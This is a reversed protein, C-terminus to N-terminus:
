SGQTLLLQNVMIIRVLPLRRGTKDRYGPHPSAPKGHNDTGVTTQTWNQGLLGPHPSAPKGHNDTGVTTQTWNQGLMIIRVLPLRRGTKNRGLTLLLQNVM